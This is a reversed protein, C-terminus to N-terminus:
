SQSEKTRTGFFYFWPNCFSLATIRLTSYFCGRSVLVFFPIWETIRKVHPGYDYGYPSPVTDADKLSAM